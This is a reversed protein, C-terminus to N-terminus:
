FMLNVRLNLAEINTLRETDEDLTYSLNNNAIDRIVTEYDLGDQNKFNTNFYEVTTANSSNFVIRKVLVRETNNPIQGSVNISTTLIPNLFIKM